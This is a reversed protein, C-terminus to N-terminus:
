SRPRCSTTAAINGDPGNQAGIFSIQSKGEAYYQNTWAAPDMQDIKVNLGVNAWDKQIATMVNLSLPDNYYTDFTFTPLTAMDVGSEQSSRRRRTPDYAYTLTHQDRHLGPNGFLCPRLWRRGNYLNKIISARDIAYEMAQRFDKNGFAPNVLPNFVVM